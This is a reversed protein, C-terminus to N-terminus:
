FDMKVSNEIIIMFTGQYLQLSEPDLWPSVVNVTYSNAPPVTYSYTKTLFQQGLFEDAKMEAKFSWDEGWVKNLEGGFNDVLQYISEGLDQRESKKQTNVPWNNNELLTDPNAEVQYVWVNTELMDAPLGPMNGNDSESTAIELQTKISEALQPRADKEKFNYNLSLTPKSLEKREAKLDSEEESKAGTNVPPNIGEVLYSEGSSVNKEESSGADTNSWLKVEGQYVELETKADQGDIKFGSQSAEGMKANLEEAVGAFQDALEQDLGQGSLQQLQNFFDQTQDKIEPPGANEDNSVSIFLDQKQYNAFRMGANPTNIRYSYDSKSGKNNVAEFKLYYHGTEIQMVVGHPNIYWQHSITDDYHKGSSLEFSVKSNYDVILESHHKAYDELRIVLHSEEGTEISCSGRLGDGQNLNILEGDADKILVEGEITAIWGLLPVYNEPDDVEPQHSYVPLSILLFLLILGIFKNKM